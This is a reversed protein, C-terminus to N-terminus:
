QIFYLDLKTRFLSGLGLGWNRLKYFLLFHRVETVMLIPEAFGRINIQLSRVQSTQFIMAMLNHHFLRFTQFSCTALCTLIKERCRTASTYRSVSLCATCYRTSFPSQWWWDPIVLTLCPTMIEMRIPRPVSYLVPFDQLSIWCSQWPLLSSNNGYNHRGSKLSM